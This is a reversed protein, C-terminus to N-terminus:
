KIEKIESKLNQVMIIVATKVYRFCTVKYTDSRM